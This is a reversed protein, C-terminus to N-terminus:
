KPDIRFPTSGWWGTVEDAKFRLVVYDPEDAGGPWYIRWDDCWLARKLAADTLIEMRGALMVGHFQEPKCYYLAVDPNARVERVKDSAASTSFFASFNGTRCVESPGPYLDRRRLNVLARIRPGKEGVTALYVAEAEDMLELVQRKGVM